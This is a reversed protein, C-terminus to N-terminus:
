PNGRCYITSGADSLDLSGADLSSALGFADFRVPTYAIEAPKEAFSLALHNSPPTGPARFFPYEVSGDEKMEFGAVFTVQKGYVILPVTPKFVPIGDYGLDTEKLFGNRLM